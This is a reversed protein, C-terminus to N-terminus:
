IYIHKIICRLGLKETNKYNVICIIERNIKVREGLKESLRAYSARKIRNKVKNSHGAVSVLRQGKKNDEVVMFPERKFTRQKFLPEKNLNNNGMM